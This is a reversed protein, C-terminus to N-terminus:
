VEGFLLPCTGTTVRELTLTGNNELKPMGSEDQNVKSWIKDVRLILDQTALGSEASCLTSEAISVM